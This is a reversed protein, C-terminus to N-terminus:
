SMLDNAVPTEHSTVKKQYLQASPHIKFGYIRPVYKEQAKPPVLHPFVQFLIHPLSTGFYAGDLNAHRSSRPHYVDECKPCYVKVTKTKPIDSLGVPVISQGNCLVRPCRGFDGRKSKEGMKQLGRNTLVYRAHILGYLHQAAKEIDARIEGDLEDDQLSDNILDLAQQFYPVENNLGTLNFKDLIFEEDVECFFENGKLTLFWDIWYKSDESETGSSMKRKM